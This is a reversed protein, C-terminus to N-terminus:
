FSGSGDSRSNRSGFACDGVSDSITLPWGSETIVSDPKKKGHAIYKLRRYVYM